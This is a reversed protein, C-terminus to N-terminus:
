ICCRSQVEEYKESCTMIGVKLGELQKDKTLCNIVDIVDNDKGDVIIVKAKPAYHKYKMGPAKPIVGDAINGQIAPDM